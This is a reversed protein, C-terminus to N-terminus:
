RLHAPQGGPRRAGGVHGYRKQAAQATVGLAEGIDAWSAPLDPDHRLGRVAETITTEVMSRVEVLERLQTCDGDEFRRGLAGLIRRAALFLEDIPTVRKPLNPNLGTNIGSRDSADGPVAVGPSETSVSM